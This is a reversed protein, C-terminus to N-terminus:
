KMHIGKKDNLYEFGIYDFILKRKDGILSSENARIEDLLPLIPGEGDWHIAPLEGTGIAERLRDAVFACLWIDDVYDYPGEM